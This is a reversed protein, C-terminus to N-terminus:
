TGQRGRPSVDMHPMKGSSTDISTGGQDWFGRETRLWDRFRLLPQLAVDDAEANASAAGAEGVLIRSVIPVARNALAGAGGPSGGPSSPPSESGPSSQPFDSRLVDERDASSNKHSFMKGLMRAHLSVKPSSSPATESSLDGRGAATTGPASSSEGSLPCLFLERLKLDEFVVAEAEVDHEAEGVKVVYRFNGRKTMKSKVIVGKRTQLFPTRKKGVINYTYTPPCEDPSRFENYM